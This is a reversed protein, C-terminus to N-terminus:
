ALCTKSLLLIREKISIFVNSIRVSFRFLNEARYHFM